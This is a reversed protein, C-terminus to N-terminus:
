SWGGPTTLWFSPPSRPTSVRLSRARCRVCGKLREILDGDAQEIAWPLLESDINSDLKPRFQRVALDYNEISGNDAFL